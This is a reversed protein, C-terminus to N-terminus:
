FRTIADLPLADFGLARFELEHLAKNFAAKDGYNCGTVRIEERYKSDELRVFHRQRRFVAPHAPHSPRTFTYELKGRQWIFYEVTPTRLGGLKKDAKFEMLVQDYLAELGLACPLSDKAGAAEKAFGPFAFVIFSLPMTSSRFKM